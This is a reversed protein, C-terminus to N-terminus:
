NYACGQVAHEQRPSHRAYGIRVFEGRRGRLEYCVFYTKHAAAARDDRGGGGGVEGSIHAAVKCFQLSSIYLIFHFGLITTCTHFLPVVTNEGSKEM